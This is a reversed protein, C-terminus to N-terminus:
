SGLVYNALLGLISRPLLHDSFHLPENFCSVATVYNARPPLNPHQALPSTTPLLLVPSAEM